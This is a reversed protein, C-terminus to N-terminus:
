VSGEGSKGPFIGVEAEAQEEGDQMHSAEEALREQLCVAQGRILAVSFGRRLEGMVKGMVGPGAEWRNSRAIPAMRSESFVKQLQHFNPSLDEWVLAATFNEM